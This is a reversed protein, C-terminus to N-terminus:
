SEEILEQLIVRVLKDYKSFVTLAHPTNECPLLMGRFLMFSGGFRPPTFLMITAACLNSSRVSRTHVAH